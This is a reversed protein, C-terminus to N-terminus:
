RVFPRVCWEPGGVFLGCWVLAGVNVVAGQLLPALRTGGESRNIFPGLCSAAQAAAVPSHARVYPDHVAANRGDRPVPM